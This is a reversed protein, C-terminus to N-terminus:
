TNTIWFTRGQPLHRASHIRLRTSPTLPHILSVGGIIPWGSRLSTQHLIPLNIAFSRLNQYPFWHMSQSGRGTGTNLEGKRKDRLQDEDACIGSVFAGPQLIHASDSEM